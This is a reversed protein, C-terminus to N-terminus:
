YRECVIFCAFLDFTSPNIGACVQVERFSRLKLVSVLTLTFHFVKSNINQGLSVSAGM